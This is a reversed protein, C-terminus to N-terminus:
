ANSAEGDLISLMDRLLDVIAGELGADPVIVRAVERGDGTIAVLIRYGGSSYHRLRFVDGAHMEHGLGIKQLLDNAAIRDEDTPEPTM